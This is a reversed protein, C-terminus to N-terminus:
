LPAVDAIVVRRVAGKGYAADAATQGVRAIMTPSPLYRVGDSGLPNDWLRVNVEHLFRPLDAAIRDSAAADVELEVRMRAYGAVRRDAALIPIVMQGAPVFARPPPAATAPAHAPPAIFQGIAWGGGAGSALGAALLGAAALARKAAM